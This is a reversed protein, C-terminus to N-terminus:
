SIRKRSKGKRIWIDTLTTMITRMKKNPDKKAGEPSFPRLHIEDYNFEFDGYRDKGASM